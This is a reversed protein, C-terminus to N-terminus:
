RASAADNSAPPVGLALVAVDDDVGDGFQTLLSQISAVVATPSAPALSTAFALLREEEYRNRGTDIRAETLGDSYLVLTDGFRLEVTAVAITPNDIAGLVQGGLLDLYRATGDAGILLPPPHGASALRVISRGEDVRLSGFVVTCQAAAADHEEQRLVANVTRLLVAHDHEHTATSRLTYRALSTLAAAEPGKGCVDGLFFGWRDDPLRFLDYFDGGVEDASAPHYHAATTMGPLTPLRPPLLSRQLVRALRQARDRERDASERARLLEREYGRRDRAEVVATHIVEVGADSRLRSALLVPLRDGGATRLEAAVGAISGQMSLLPAYHTEHYIRDGVGLLDVFRCKGVLEERERGLWGLLTANVTLITGDARTSLLGCPSRDYLDAPAQQGTSEDPQSRGARTM